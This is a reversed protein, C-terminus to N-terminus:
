VTQTPICVSAGGIVKTMTKKDLVKTVKIDKISLKKIQKKKMKFIKYTIFFPLKYPKLVLVSEM